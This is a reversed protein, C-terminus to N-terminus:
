DPYKDSCVHHRVGSHFVLTKFIYHFHKLWVVFDGRKVENHLDHWINIFLFIKLFIFSNDLCRSDGIAALGGPCRFARNPNYNPNWKVSNSYSSLLLPSCQTCAVHLFPLCQNNAYSVVNFHCHYLEGNLILNNSEVASHISPKESCDTASGITSDQFAYLHLGTRVQHRSLLHGIITSHLLLKPHHTGRSLVRLRLKYPLDALCFQQSTFFYNFYGVAYM